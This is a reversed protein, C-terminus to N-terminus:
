EKDGFRTKSEQVQKDIAEQREKIDNKNIMTMPPMKMAGGSLYEQKIDHLLQCCFNLADRQSRMGYNISQMLIACSAWSPVANPPLMMAYQEKSICGNRFLCDSINFDTGPSREISAPRDLHGYQGMRIGFLKYFLEGITDLIYFEKNPDPEVFILLNRNNSQLASLMIAIVPEKEKSSLYQLYITRGIDPRKNLYAEIVPYPPLISSLLSCNPHPLPRTEAVLAVQWGRQLADQVAGMDVTCYLLGRLLGTNTPMVYPQAM